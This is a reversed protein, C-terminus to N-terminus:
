EMMREIADEFGASQIFLNMVAGLLILPSLLCFAIVKIWNM